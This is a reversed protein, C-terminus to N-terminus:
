TTLVTKNEILIPVAIYKGKGKANGSTMKTAKLTALMAIQFFATVIIIVTAARLSQFSLVSTTKESFSSSITISTNIAPTGIESDNNNRSQGAVHGSLCPETTIFSDSTKRSSSFHTTKDSYIIINRNEREQQQKEQKGLLFDSVSSLPKARSSLFFTCLFADVSHSSSSFFSHRHHDDESFNFGLLSLYLTDLLLKGLSISDAVCEHTFNVLKQHAVLVGSVDALVTVAKAVVQKEGTRTSSVTVINNSCSNRKLLRRLLKQRPSSTTFQHYDATTAFYWICEVRQPIVVVEVVLGSVKEVLITKEETDKDSLLLRSLLKKTTFKQKKQQHLQVRKCHKQSLKAQLENSNQHPRIHYLVLSM